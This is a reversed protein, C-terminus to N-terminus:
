ERESVDSLESLLNRREDLMPPAPHSGSVSPSMEYLAEIVPSLSPMSRINSHSNWRRFSLPSNSPFKLKWPSNNNQDDENLIAEADFNENEDDYINDNNNFDHNNDYNSRTMFPLFSLFSFGKNHIKAGRTKNISSYQHGSNRKKSSSQRFFRLYIFYILCIIFILIFGTFFFVPIQTLFHFFSGSYFTEDATGIRNSFLKEVNLTASILIFNQNNISYTTTTPTEWYYDIYIFSQSPSLSDKWNNINYVIPIKIPKVIEGRSWLHFSQNENSNRPFLSIIFTQISDGTKITVYHNTEITSLIGHSSLLINLSFQHPSQIMKSYNAIQTVEDLMVRSSHNKHPINEKDFLILDRSYVPHSVSFSDSDLLYTSPSTMSPATSALSASPILLSSPWTAQTLLITFNISDIIEKNEVDLSIEGYCIENSECEGYYAIIPMMSTVEILFRPYNRHNSLNLNIRAIEVGSKKLYRSHVRVSLIIEDNLRNEIPV